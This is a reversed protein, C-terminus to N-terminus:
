IVMVKYEDVSVAGIHSGKKVNNITTYIVQIDKGSKYRSCQKCIVAGQVAIKKVIKKDFRLTLPLTAVVHCSSEQSIHLNKPAV